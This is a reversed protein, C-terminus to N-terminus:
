ELNDDDDHYHYHNHQHNTLNLEMVDEYLDHTRVQSRCGTHHTICDTM